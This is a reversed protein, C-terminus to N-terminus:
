ETGKGAVPPDGGARADRRAEPFMVRIAKSAARDVDDVAQEVARPDDNQCATDLAALLSRIRTTHEGPLRQQHRDLYTKTQGSVKLGADIPTGAARPRIGANAELRWKAVKYRRRFTDIPWADEDLLATLRPFRDADTLLRWAETPEELPAPLRPARATAGENAQKLEGDLWLEDLRQQRAVRLYGAEYEAGLADLYRTMATIHEHLPPDHNVIGMARLRRLVVRAQMLESSQEQYTKATRHALLRLRALTVTQNVAVLDDLVAHWADRKSRRQDILKVATSLAGTLALGIALTLLWKGVEAHVDANSDSLFLVGVAVTAAFLVGFGITLPAYPQKM